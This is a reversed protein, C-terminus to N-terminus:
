NDSRVLFLSDSRVAIRGNSFDQGPASFEDLVTGKDNTIRVIAGEVRIHLSLSDKQGASQAEVKAERQNSSEQGVFMKRILKGSQGELSYQVKSHHAPDEVMWEVKKDWFLTKGPRSFVLNERLLGPKLNIFKGPTRSKLWAGEHAVQSSDEFEFDPVATLNLPVNVDEKGLNVTTTFRQYGASEAVVEYQGPPLQTKDSANVDKFQTEGARRYKVTVGRASTEFTLTAMSSSLAAKAIQADALPKGPASPSITVEFERGEFGPKTMAVTHKGQAVAKPLSLNGSSDLEGINKGDLMVAAGPTGGSISLGAMALAVTRPHLQINKNVVGRRPTNMTWSQPEFGEATLMFKHSGPAKSVTWGRSQRPLERGDMSLSAKDSNATIFIRGDGNLSQVVVTPANSMEISVSGQNDGQGFTVDHIQDSLTIAAGGPSIAVSQDGIVANGLSSGGYLTAHNGLSSVALLDNGDVGTIQPQEGAAAQVNLTL